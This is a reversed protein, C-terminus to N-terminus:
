APYKPRLLSEPRASAASIAWAWAIRKPATHAFKAGVLDVAGVPQGRLGPGHEAIVHAEALRRLRDAGGVEHGRAADGHDARGNAADVPASLEVAPAQLPRLQVDLAVVPQRRLLLRAVLKPREPRVRHDGVLRMVQLRALALAGPRHVALVAVVRPQEADRLPHPQEGARRGRVVYRLQPPM